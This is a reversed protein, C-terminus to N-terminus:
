DIAEVCSEYVDHPSENWRPGFNRPPFLSWGYSNFGFLLWRGHNTDESRLLERVRQSMSLIDLRVTTSSAWSQSTGIKATTSLAWSPSTGLDTRSPVGRIHKPSWDCLKRKTFLRPLADMVGELAFFALDIVENLEFVLVKLVLFISFILVITESLFPELRPSVGLVYRFAKECSFALSVLGLGCVIVTSALFFRGLIAQLTARLQRKGGPM